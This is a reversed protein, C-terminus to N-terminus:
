RREPYPLDQPGRRCGSSFLADDYAVHHQGPGPLIGDKQQVPHLFVKRFPLVVHAQHALVGRKIVAATERLDVASNCRILVILDNIGGDLQSKDMPKHLFFAACLLFIRRRKIQFPQLLLNLLHICDNKCPYLFEEM